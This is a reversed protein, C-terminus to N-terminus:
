VLIIEAERFGELFGVEDRLSKADHVDKDVESLHSTDHKFWGIRQYCERRNDLELMSNTRRLILCLQRFRFVSGVVLLFCNKDDVESSDFIDLMKSRKKFSWSSYSELNSPSIQHILDGEFRVM